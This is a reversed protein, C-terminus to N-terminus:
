SLGYVRGVLYGVSALALAIGTFTAASGLASTDPGRVTEGSADITSVVRFWYRAAILGSLAALTFLINLLGGPWM